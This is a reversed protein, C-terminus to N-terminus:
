NYLVIINSSQTNLDISKTLCYRSETHKIDQTLCYLSEEVKLISFDGSFDIENSILELTSPLIIEKDGYKITFDIVSNELKGKSELLSFVKEGDPSKVQVVGQKKCSLLMNISILLLLLRNMNKVKIKM